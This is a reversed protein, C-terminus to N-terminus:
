GGEGEGAGNMCVFSGDDFMIVPLAEAPANCLWISAVDVPRKGADRAILAVAPGNPHIYKLGPAIEDWSLGAWTPATM